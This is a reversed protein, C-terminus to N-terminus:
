GGESEGATVIAGRAGLVAAQLAELAEGEVGLGTLVEVLHGVTRDYDEGTVALSAHAAGLDRGDYQEPGGLITTLLLVQHRKVAPVDKGEFYPALQPDDLVATYFRDVALRLADAGGVTDYLTSGNASVAPDSVRIGECAPAHRIRRIPCM